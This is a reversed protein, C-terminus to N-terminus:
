LAAEAAALREVLRKVRGAPNGGVLLDSIVAVSSAGAAIADAARDLTIGGIAVVPLPDGERARAREAAYRILDHGVAEYGTDKTATRYVPGVAFYDIPELIAADVQVPTHTSLGICGQAGTVRRADAPSLDDQGLHVGSAGSLRAVDARDNVIVIAAGAAMTVIADAADLTWQLSRFKARLQLCAAGGDLCARALDIVTWGHAAAVDADIVAYLRPLTV